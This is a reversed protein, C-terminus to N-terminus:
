GCGAVDASCFFLLSLPIPHAHDIHQISSQKWRKIQYCSALDFWQSQKWGCRQSAGPWSMRKSSYYSEAEYSINQTCLWLSRGPNNYKYTRHPHTPLRVSGTVGHMFPNKDYLLQCYLEFSAHMILVHCSVVLKTNRDTIGARICPPYEWFLLIERFNFVSPLFHSSTVMQYFPVWECCLQLSLSSHLQEPLEHHILAESFSSHQNEKHKETMEGFAGDSTPYKRLRHRSHRNNPFYLSVKNRLLFVATDTM